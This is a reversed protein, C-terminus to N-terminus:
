KFEVGVRNKDQWVIRCPRRASSPEVVLAFRDPLQMQPALELCAGDPTLDRIVCEVTSPPQDLVIKGLIFTPRRPYKRDDWM